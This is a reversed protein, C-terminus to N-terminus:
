RLPQSFRVGILARVDAQAAPRTAADLASLDAIPSASATAFLSLPRDNLALPTAEVEAEARWTPEWGRRSSWRWAGEVRVGGALLGDARETRAALSLATLPAVRQDVVLAGAADRALGLDYRGGVGVVLFRGPVHARWFDALVDGHVVGLEGRTLTLARAQGVDFLVGIDFPLPLSLPPSSPISLTGERSARLFLGRYLAGDLTPTGDTGPSLSLHALEHSAGWTVDWGAGPRESRVLLGVELAPALAARGDGRVLATGAGLLLRHGPDFRVRFRAGSADARWVDVQARAPAAAALALAAALLAALRRPRLSRRRM